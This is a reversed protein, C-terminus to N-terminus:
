SPSSCSASCVHSCSSSPSRTASSSRRAGALGERGGLLLLGDHEHRISRGDPGRLEPRALGGSWTIPETWQTKLNPGTPGNFFANQLEGWRGEFAIWPIRRGRRGAPREPDDRRAPRARPAPRAHRRLRSRGRGLQRALARGHVQQRALRGGPVRRSADRRRPRAERRGVRRERRGRALQVRGRSPTQSLAAAADPADFLLQIMEWDGEHTNNFDNFPYFFWYQLALKGPYGPESVVHAYVTPESGATSGRAWRKYDCGPDLPDGPFDLHYEFRNVLDDAEPRDRRPRHQEVPRAARRHARRRSPPRRRDPDFPEGHDRVRGGARRAPRGARLQEALAQEDAPRGVSGARRRAVLALALVARIM